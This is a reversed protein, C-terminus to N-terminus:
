RIRETRVSSNVNVQGPTGQIEIEQQVTNVEENYLMRGTLDIYREANFKMEKITVTGASDGASLAGSAGEMSGLFKWAKVGDRTVEGEFSAKASTMVKEMFEALVKENGQFEDAFGKMMDNPAIKWNTGATLEAPMNAFGAYAEVLEEPGTVHQYEEGLTSMLMVASDGKKAPFEEMLSATMMQAMPGKGIFAISDLVAHVRLTDGGAATIRMSTLLVIDFAVDMSMGMVNTVTTTANTIRFQATDTGFRPAQASLPTSALGLALAAAAALRQAPSFFQRRGFSSDSASSMMASEMYPAM